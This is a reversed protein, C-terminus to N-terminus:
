KWEGPMSARLEAVLADTGREEDLEAALQLMAAKRRKRKALAFHEASTRTPAHRKPVPLRIVNSRIM